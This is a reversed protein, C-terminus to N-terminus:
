RCSTSSTVKRSRPEARTMKADLVLQDSGNFNADPSYSFGAQLAGNVDDRSGVLAITRTGGGSVALSLSSAANPNLTGHAVQVTATIVDGADPDFVAGGPLFIAPGDENIVPGPQLSPLFAVPVDQRGDVTIDIVRTDFGGHGDSVRVTFADTEHQGQALAQVVPANNNLWYTWAGAPNISLTGYTGEIYSNSPSPSYAVIVARTWTEDSFIHGVESFTVTRTYTAGAYFDFEAHVDYSSAAHALRLVIHTEGAAPEFARNQLTSVTDAVFDYDRFQVQLNGGTGKRVVLEVADDGNTPGPPLSARRDDLRIGFAERLDDPFAIDFRAEVTFSSNFRLGNSGTPDVNTGLTAFHGHFDEKNGVGFTPAGLGADMVLRSEGTQSNSRRSSPEQRSTPAAMTRRRRATTSSTSSPSVVRATRVVRFADLGFHYEVPEPPHPSIFNGNADLRGAEWLLDDGEADTATLRGSRDTGGDEQVQATQPGEVIAPADNVAIVTANVTRTQPPASGESLSVTFSGDTTESGDHQFAVMGAVLDAQTFSSAAAGSVLVTGHSSGTVTYVLQANTSDPDTATLDATTM